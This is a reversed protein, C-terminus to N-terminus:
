PLVSPPLYSALGGLDGRQLPRSDKAFERWIGVAIHSLDIPEDAEVALYAAHLAANRIHGGTLSVAQALFVTSVEPALPARPPLLRRWLESRSHLDPRPFEVVLQFRRFFAPDLQDRLNTTLICPGRHAEIRALLHSVQLNSWRDRAENIEGRKGMVSDAEDFQLVISQEHAADFLRNINKETEGIYKSVLCGLDVRYLPWGLQNAIVAAAFTKGTGSPGSFLAVPGGTREGGWQGEVVQRHKIWLIFEQLMRIRDAPLVLDGWDSDLEIRYAGPLAHHVPVDLLRALIDGGPHIPELSGYRDVKILRRRHLEGEPALAMYLHGLESGKLDFLSQLMAPTPYPQSCGNQLAIYLWSLRPWIEPALACALIDMELASLGDVPLRRWPSQADRMFVVQHQLFTLRELMAEGVPQGNRASVLSQGLLEIREWEHDLSDCMLQTPLPVSM